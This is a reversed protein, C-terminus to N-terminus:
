ILPLAKIVAAFFAAEEVSMGGITGRREAMRRFRTFDTPLEETEVLYALGQVIRVIEEPYKIRRKLTDFYEVAITGRLVDYDVDKVSWLALVLYDGLAQWFVEDQGRWKPLFFRFLAPQKKGVQPIHRYLSIPFNAVADKDVGELMEWLRKRQDERILKEIQELAGGQGPRSILKELVDQLM